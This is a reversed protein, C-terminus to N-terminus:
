RMNQTKRGGQQQWERPSCGCHRKFYRSFHSLNSFGCIEATQGISLAQNTLLNKAKDLRVEILDSHPTSSFFQKYYSYFQSKEMNAMQCLKETTWEEEYHSLMALRLEQFEQYLGAPEEATQQYLRMGRSAMIMMQRVLAEEYEVAYPDKVIYERQQLRILEDIAETNQPYFVTNQPIGYKEGLNEGCWGDDIYEDVVTLGHEAAYQRLMMRQTQISGSEGQLEDDRSLRLYLATNYVTTNYPQKM